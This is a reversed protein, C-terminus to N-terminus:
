SMLRSACFITWYVRFIPREASLVPNELELRGNLFTLSDRRRNVLKPASGESSSEIM